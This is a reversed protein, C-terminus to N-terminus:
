IGERRLDQEISSRENTTWPGAVVIADDSSQGCGGLGIIGFLLGLFGSSVSPKMTPIRGRKLESRITADYVSM